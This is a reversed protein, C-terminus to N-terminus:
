GVITAEVVFGSRGTAASRMWGGRIANPKSEALMVHFNMGPLGAESRPRLAGDHQVIREDGPSVSADDEIL